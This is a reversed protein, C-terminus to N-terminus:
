LPSPESCDDDDAGDSGRLAGYQQCGGQTDHNHRWELAGVVWGRMEAVKEGGLARLGGAAPLGRTM